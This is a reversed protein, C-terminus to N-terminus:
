WIFAAIAQGLTRHDALYASFEGQGAVAGLAGVVLLTLM